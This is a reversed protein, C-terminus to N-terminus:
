SFIVLSSFGILASYAVSEVYAKHCASSAYTRGKPYPVFSVIYLDILAMNYHYILFAFLCHNYDLFLIM